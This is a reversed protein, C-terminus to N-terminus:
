QKYYRFSKNPILNIIKRDSNFTAIKQIQIPAVKKLMLRKVLKRRISAASLLLILLSWFRKKKATLRYGRENKAFVGKLFNSNTAFFWNRKTSISKGKEEDEGRLGMELIFFYSFHFHWLLATKSIPQMKIKKRLDPNELWIMPLPSVYWNNSSYKILVLQGTRSRETIIYFTEMIEWLERRCGSCIM